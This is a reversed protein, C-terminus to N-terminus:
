KATNQKMYTQILIVTHSISKQKLIIICMDSHNVTELRANKTGYYRLVERKISVFSGYVPSNVPDGKTGDISASTVIGWM